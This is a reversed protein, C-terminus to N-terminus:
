GGVKTNTSPIPPPPPPPPPPASGATPGTQTPSPTRTTHIPPRIGPRTDPTQIPQRMAPPALAQIPGRMPPPAARVLQPSAPPIEKRPFSPSGSPKPPRPPPPEEEIQSQSHFQNSHEPGVSQGQPQMVEEVIDYIDGEDDAEVAEDAPDERPQFPPPHSKLEDTSLCFTNSPFSLFTLTPPLLSFPSHQLSFLSLHTNSPSSLFSGVLHCIMSTMKM